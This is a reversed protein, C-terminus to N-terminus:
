GTALRRSTVRVRRQSQNSLAGRRNMMAVTSGCHLAQQLRDFAQEVRQGIRCPALARGRPQENAIAGDPREIAREGLTAPSKGALMFTLSLAGRSVYIKRM